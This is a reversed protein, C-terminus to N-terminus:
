DHRFVYNILLISTSYTLYLTGIVFEWKRRWDQLAAV